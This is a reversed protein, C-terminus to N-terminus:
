DFTLLSFFHLVHKKVIVNKDLVKFMKVINSVQVISLIVRTCQRNIIKKENFFYM